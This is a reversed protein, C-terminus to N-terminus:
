IRGFFSKLIKKWAMLDPLKIISKFYRNNVAKVEVAYSAGDIEGQAQGYGTMSNIM